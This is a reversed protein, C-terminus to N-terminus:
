AMWVWRGGCATTERTLYRSVSLLSRTLRSIKVGESSSTKMSSVPLLSRSQSVEEGQCAHANGQGKAVPHEEEEDDKERHNQKKKIHADKGFAIGAFDAEKQAGNQSEVDHAAEPSEAGGQDHEALLSNEASEMDRRYGCGVHQSGADGGVIHHGQRDNRELQKQGPSNKM